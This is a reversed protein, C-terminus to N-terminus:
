SREFYGRPCIKSQSMPRRVARCYKIFLFTIKESEFQCRPFNSLNGIKGCQGICLSKETKRGVFFLDDKAVFSVSLLINPRQRQRATHRKTQGIIFVYFYARAPM